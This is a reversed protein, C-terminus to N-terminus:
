DKAGNDIRSCYLVDYYTTDLIVNYGKKEMIPGLKVCTKEGGVVHYAGIALNEIKNLLKSKALVSLECGEIDLKAFNIPKGILKIIMDLTLTPVQEVRIPTFDDVKNELELTNGWFNHSIKFPMIKSEDYVAVSLLMSNIPMKETLFDSLGRISWVSSEVAVYFINNRMFEDYYVRALEGVTAGLDLVIDDKKINYYKFYDHDIGYRGDKSNKFIM